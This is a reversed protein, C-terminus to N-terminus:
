RGKLLLRDGTAIRGLNQKIENIKRRAANGSQLWRRASKILPAQYFGADRFGCPFSETTLRTCVNNRSAAPMM